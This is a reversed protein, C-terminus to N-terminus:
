RKEDLAQQIKDLEEQTFKGHALMKSIADAKGSGDFKFKFVKADGDHNLKQIVKKAHILAAESDDLAEEVVKEIDMVIVNEHDGDAFSFVSSNSGSGIKIMKADLHISSLQEIVKSRIDDPLASLHEELQSKDQWDGSPITVDYKEGDSVVFVHAEKDSDASIEIRHEKHVTDSTLALASMSLSAGTISLLLALATKKFNKM